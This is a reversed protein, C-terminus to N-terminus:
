IKYRRHIECKKKIKGNVYRKVDFERHIQCPSNQLHQISKYVRFSISCPLSGTPLTFTESQMDTSQHASQEDFTAQTLFGDSRYRFRHEYLLNRYKYIYVQTIWGHGHHLKPTRLKGKCVRLFFMNKKLFQFYLGLM